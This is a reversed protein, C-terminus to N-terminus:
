REVLPCSTGELSQATTQWYSGLGRTAGAELAAALGAPGGGAILVDCHANMRDYKDPDPARPSEGLGAAKRIVGKM